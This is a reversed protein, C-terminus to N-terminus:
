SANSTIKRLKVGYSLDSFQKWSIQFGIKQLREISLNLHWFFEDQLAEVVDTRDASTYRDIKEKLDASDKVMLDGFVAIGNDNLHTWIHKFLIAKEAETLHHITYTSLIVDFPGIKQDFVALVDDEIFSRYTLAALKEQALTEMKNSVDVCVLERCFPIRCTLNGTGSGLELVRSHENITAALSVWDLVADYGTRIPDAENLVDDDYIEADEDHNFYDAHKSRL